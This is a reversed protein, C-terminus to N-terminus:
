DEDPLALLWRLQGKTAADLKKGKLAAAVADEFMGAVTMLQQIKKLEEVDVERAFVGERFVNLDLSEGRYPTTGDFQWGQLDNWGGFPLYRRVGEDITRGWHVEGHRRPYGAMWLPLDHFSRDSGMINSWGGPSAYIWPEQQYMSVLQVDRSTVGAGAEVDLAIFRQLRFLKLSIEQMYALAAGIDRSPWVYSAIGGDGLAKRAGESQQRWHVNWRGSVPGGGWAQIVAGKVNHEDRLRVWWSEPIPGTFESVDIVRDSM